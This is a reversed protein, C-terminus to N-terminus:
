VKRYRAETLAFLGYAAFGVAIVLLLGTGYAEGALTRLAADLGRAKDPDYRWAAIVFLAGASGYALGKAVFGTAGLRRVLRRTGAAMEGVRLHKEFRGTFGVFALWGGIGALILGATIVTVRGGSSALLGEATDQQTDASSSKKGRLVKIGSFALYLYFAARGASAMRESLLRGRFMELVQWVAMAVLGVVIALILALGFPEDAIEQMAGSQDRDATPGGSAVRAIVWAFLLHLIGYGIFGARTLHELGPNDAARSVAGRARSSLSSM